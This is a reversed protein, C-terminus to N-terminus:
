HIGLRREIEALRPLMRDIEYGCWWAQEFAAAGKAAYLVGDFDRAYLPQKKQLDQAILDRGYEGTDTRRYTTFPVDRHLAEPQARRDIQDKLSEDSTSFNITGVTTLNGSQTLNLQRGIFVGSSSYSYLSYSADAEIVHRWRPQGDSYGITAMITQSGVSGTQINLGTNTILAGMSTVSGNFSANGNQTLNFQRGIFVGASTYSYLSYSADTELTHNWRTQGDGYGINVMVSQSGVSGSQIFIAKSILSATSTINGTVVIGGTFTSASGAQIGGNLVFKGSADMNFFFPSSGTGTRFSLVGSGPSTESIFCLAAGIAVSQCAIAGTSVGSPTINGLGLTSGSFQIGNTLTIAQPTATSATPNGMLSNAQFAAMKALTVAGTSITGAATVNATGDFAPSTWSVDGTMAITRATALKTAAVATGGIPLYVGAGNFTSTYFNTGDTIVDATTGQAVTVGSGTAGQVSLSGAGSTNNQITWSAGATLPLILSATSAISGTIILLRPGLTSPDPTNNGVVVPITTSGINARVSVWGSPSSADPNTTNNDSLNLWLGKGDARALLAQAPYGGQNTNFTSNFTYHFGSQQWLTNLTEDYLIGNTDSGFPPVGGSAIPTFTLPPYGDTFSAAGNTIGIQSAVPITNKTGANAWPIVYQTPANSKQM